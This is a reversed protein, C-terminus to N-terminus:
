IYMEFHNQFGRWHIIKDACFGLVLIRCPLEVTWDM